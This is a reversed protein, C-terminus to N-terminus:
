PGSKQLGINGVHLAWGGKKSPVILADDLERYALLEADSTVKSGHFELKLRRDTRLSRGFSPREVGVPAQRPQVSGMGHRRHGSHGSLTM